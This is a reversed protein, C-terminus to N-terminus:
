ARSQGGAARASKMPSSRSASRVRAEMAPAYYQRNNRGSGKAHLLAVDANHLLTDADKGHDPYLGIGISITASIEREGIYYPANMAAIIKDASYSADTARELESLLIVFEDGGQRSVTDSDRVCGLLRQSIAQLLQDGVIHGCSDNIRKFHDVDAYMVALSRSHRRAASIAAALRDSLLMRNPLQTLFDHQALHSMRVTMARAVTVDHFVVVAGIVQGNRDHIPAATDEVASEYGDRRVLLCNESLGVPQDQLIAMALPNLAVERTEADIVRLVELLPRGVAEHKSWGTLGEAVPNLYTVLGDIDISVIGDGISDLTVQAQEMQSLRSSVDEVFAARCLMNNVDKPLSYGDIHGVLLYDQAGLGVALRATGEDVAKSIILIPTRPAEAFLRKFTELGRSDSLFLDVIVADIRDRRRSALRDIGDSLRRVREVSFHGEGSAVLSNVVAAATVEDSVVVLIKLVM